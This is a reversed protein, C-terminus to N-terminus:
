SLESIIALELRILFQWFRSFAGTLRDAASLVFVGACAPTKEILL